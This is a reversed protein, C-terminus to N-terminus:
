VRSINNTGVSKGLVTSSNDTGGVTLHKPAANFNDLDVLHFDLLIRAAVNINTLGLINTLLGSPDTHTVVVQAILLAISATVRAMRPLLGHYKYARNVTAASKYLVFSIAIDLIAYVLGNMDSDLAFVITARNGAFCVVLSYFSEPAALCTMYDIEDIIVAAYSLGLLVYFLTKVLGRDFLVAKIRVVYLYVLCTRMIWSLILVLWLTWTLAYVDYDTSFHSGL